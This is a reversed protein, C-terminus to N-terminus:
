VHARGIEIGNEAEGICIVTDKMGDLKKITGKRILEEDDIVIYTYM